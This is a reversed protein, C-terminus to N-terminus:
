MGTNGIAQLMDARANKYQTHTYVNLTLAVNAHGMIYQLNKPNMGSMAMNTCFTHRFVHATLKPTSMYPHTERYKLDIRRIVKGVNLSSRPKGDDQCFIFGTYGDVMQDMKINKARWEIQDVFCRYVDDSMPIYRIGSKSKPPTIHLSRDRHMVLQHDVSIRRKKLDIDSITLGCVEGVRMGTGLMVIFMNYYKRYYRNTKVFELLREQENATLAVRKEEDNEVVTSLAFKAPNRKIAEDTYAMEFAPKIVGRISLITNFSLGDNHLQRYWSKLDTQRVDAIPMDGIPYRDIVSQVYRYQEETNNAVGGKLSVYKEVM